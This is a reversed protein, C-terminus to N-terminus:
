SQRVGAPVRGRCREVDELLGAADLRRGRRALQANYFSEGVVDDADAARRAPRVRGALARRSLRRPVHWLAITEPRARCCCSASAAARRRVRPRREFRASAQQYFDDLDGIALADSSTPTSDVLHEILMGFPPGWDGVHNERVVEHGLLDLMRVIADGIVTSRLHGIHM